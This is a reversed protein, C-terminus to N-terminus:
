LSTIGLVQVEDFLTRDANMTPPEVDGFFMGSLGNRECWVKGSDSLNEYWSPSFHCNETVQLILSGIIAPLDERDVLEFPIAFRAGSRDSDVLWCILFYSKGDAAFSSFNILDPTAGNWDLRQVPLGNIDKDPFIGATCQIPFTRDFEILTGCVKRWDKNLLVKDYRLKHRKLDRFAISTGKNFAAVASAVAASKEAFATRLDSQKASSAKAHIEKCLSRYAILFCQEKTGQFPADELPEFLRKDHYGCFGPFTSAQKWGTSEPRLRGGTRQLGLMDLSYSFVHGDRQIAGLSGSRSVTHSSIVGKSCESHLSEPAYCGGKRAIARVEAAVKFINPGVAGTHHGHCRKFKKKSGCPCLDNRGIKGSFEPIIDPM